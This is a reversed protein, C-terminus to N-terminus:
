CSTRNKKLACGVRGTIPKRDNSSSRIKKIKYLQINKEDAGLKEACRAIIDSRNADLPATLIPVVLDVEVGAAGNSTSNTNNDM